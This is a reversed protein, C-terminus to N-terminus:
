AIRLMVRRLKEHMKRLPLAVIKRNELQKRPWLCDELVADRIQESLGVFTILFSNTISSRLSSSDGASGPTQTRPGRPRSSTLRRRASKERTRTSRARGATWRPRTWDPRSCTCSGTRSRSLTRGSARRAATALHRRRCRSRWRWSCPRIDVASRKCRWEPRYHVRAADGYRQTSLTNQKVTM